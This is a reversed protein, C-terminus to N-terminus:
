RGALGLDQRSIRARHGTGPARHGTGPTRLPRQSALAAAMPEWSLAESLPVPRDLAILGAQHTLLWRVPLDAKGNAAFEPWYEAVPADLDLEGRQVLLHAATATAGKAASYVLQLTGRAWPRGLTVTPSGVGRTWLRGAM